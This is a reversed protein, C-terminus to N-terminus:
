FGMLSRMRWLLSPSGLLTTFFIRPLTRKVLPINTIRRAAKDFVHDPISGFAPKARGLRDHVEGQVANWDQLLNSEIAKRQEPTPAKLWEAIAKAVLTGGKMAEVIGSRSIPNVQSASDGAKFVGKAALARPSQGCAIAGGYFAGVSVNPWRESIWQQLLKRPSAKSLHDRGIVIGVNASKDSRPFVWGYGGPFLRSGFDLEIMDGPFEIGELITFVAPELDFSGNELSELGPIGKTLKGGPGSADVVARVTLSFDSVGDLLGRVVWSSGVSELSQVNARFHVQVGAAVAREALGRHMEARDLILGSNPQLYDVRTGNPSVFVVGNVTGRVWAPDIEGAWKLLGQAHVAEACSVPERWPDRRDLLAVSLGSQALRWAALLGAPGAGCVAVDAQQPLRFDM